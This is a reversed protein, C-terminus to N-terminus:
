GGECGKFQPDVPQWPQLSSEVSLAHAAALVLVLVVSLKVM